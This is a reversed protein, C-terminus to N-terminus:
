GRPFLVGPLRWTRARHLAPSGLVGGPCSWGDWRSRWSGPPGARWPAQRKLWAERLGAQLNEQAVICRRTRLAGSSRRRTLKCHAKHHRRFSQKASPTLWGAQRYLQASGLLAARWVALGSAGPVTPMTVRSAEVDAKLQSQDASGQTGASRGRLRRTNSAQRKVTGHRRVRINPARATLCPRCRRWSRKGANSQLPTFRYQRCAAVGTSRWLM